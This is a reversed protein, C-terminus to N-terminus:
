PGWPRLDRIICPGVPVLTRIPSPHLHTQFSAVLGCPTTYLPPTRRHLYPLAVQSRM